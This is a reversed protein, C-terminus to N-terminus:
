QLVDVLMILVETKVNWSGLVRSNRLVVLYYLWANNFFYPITKSRM